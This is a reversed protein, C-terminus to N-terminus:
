KGVRDVKKMHEIAQASQGAAAEATALNFFNNATPARQVLLSFAQKADQFDQAQLAQKGRLLLDENTQPQALGVHFFVLNVALLLQAVTVRGAM